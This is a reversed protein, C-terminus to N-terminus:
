FQDVIGPTLETVQRYHFGTSDAPLGELIVGGLAGRVTNDSGRFTIPASLLDDYRDYALLAAV